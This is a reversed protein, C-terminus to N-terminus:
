GRESRFISFILLFMGGIIALDATNYVFRNVRKPTRPFRIYDFVKGLRMREWLNSFGGGLVLGLGLKATPHKPFDPRFSALSLVVLLLGSLGILGRKKPFPLGFSAGHNYIPVFEVGGKFLKRPPADKLYLRLAACLALVLGAILFVMPIRGKVTSVM